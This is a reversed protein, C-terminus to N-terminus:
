HRGGGGQRERQADSLICCIQMWAMSLFLVKRALYKSRSFTINIRLYIWVYIYIDAQGGQRDITSWQKLDSGNFSKGSFGNLKLKELLKSIAADM